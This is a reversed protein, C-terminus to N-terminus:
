YLGLVGTATTGTAFVKRARIPLVEGATLGLFVAIDGQSMVVAVNGAVGIYLARTVYPLDTNDSPEIPFAFVAPAGIGDGSRDLAM